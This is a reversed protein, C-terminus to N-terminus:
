SNMSFDIAAEDLLAIEKIGSVSLPRLMNSSGHLLTYADIRATM